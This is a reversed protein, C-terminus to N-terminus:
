IDFEELIKLITFTPIIERDKEEERVLLYFDCLSCTKYKKAFTGEASGMCFTGAVAWCARGANKGGHVGDLRRELVAPCVGCEAVNAGGPERGCGQFEWCNLRREEEPM